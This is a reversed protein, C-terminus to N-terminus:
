RLVKIEKINEDGDSLYYLGTPVLKGEPDRQNWQLYGASPKGLSAMEVGAENRIYYSLSDSLGSINLHGLYGPTIASPLVSVLSALTTNSSAGEPFFQALGDFYTSIFISGDSPNVGITAIENGPLHSNEKTYYGLLTTDDSDVCLLGRVSGFWRRGSPDIAMSTFENNRQAPVRNQETLLALYHFKATGAELDDLNLRFCGRSTLVYINHTDSDECAGFMYSNVKEDLARIGSNEWELNALNYFIDDSTDDLTGRHDYIFYRRDAKNYDFFSYLLKTTHGMSFLPTLHHDRSSVLGECIEIRRMPHGEYASHDAVANISAARESPTWYYLWMHNEEGSDPIRDYMTWMVGDADFKPETPNVLANYLTQTPFVAIMGPMKAMGADGSRTLALVDSPDSLNQRIIGHYFSGSYILDPNLPDCAGGRTGSLTANFEPHTIFNDFRHWKNDAFATLNDYQSDAIAIKATAPNGRVVLGYKPNVDFSAALANANGCFPITASRPNWIPASNWVSADYEARRSYIGQSSHHFEFEEGDWTSIKRQAELDIKDAVSALGTQSVLHLSKAKFDAVPDAASEDFTYGSRLLAVANNFNFVFGDRYEGVLGDLPYLHCLNANAGMSQATYTQQLVNIASLSDDEGVKVVHVCYYGGHPVTVAFSDDTLPFINQPSVLQGAAADICNGSHKVVWDIPKAYAADTNPAANKDCVFFRPVGDSAMAISVMKDGMRNVFDIRTACHVFTEALGSILDIVFYGSELALYMTRGDIDFNISRVGKAYPLNFKALADCRVVNDADDVIDVEGSKYVAVLRKAKHSYEALEVPASEIDVEDIVPYVGKEPHQLDARYLANYELSLPITGSKKSRDLMRGRTILYVYRGTSLMKQVQSGPMGTGTCAAPHYKWQGTLRRANAPVAVWLLLAVICTLGLKVM